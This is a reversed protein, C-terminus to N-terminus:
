CNSYDKNWYKSLQKNEERLSMLRLIFVSVRPLLFM